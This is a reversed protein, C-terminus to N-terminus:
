LVNVADIPSQLTQALGADVTFPPQWNLTTQIHSSDIALNGLLRDITSTNLSLQKKSLNQVTDGLKGGLQLWSPPVSLLHCPHNLNTAIKQILEPTSFDERDSVLFTQNAAQPHNLTSAIADVLNGVYVLSRRNKVAGFPLPLGKQVLKILREMNGPNGAGYVLPPRLVTWTMHSQSALQVLAQEAQLKSRGYPTDPQCPSSETLPRDSSSTMAGISSIFVFRKVGTAISQKVLNVTGETNVRLFEAEPDTARDQLIHARAALHVVTNIGELASHWDTNGDINGVTISAVGAPLRASDNRVAATVQLNDQLLRPLLHSAVFGTAGTILITNM